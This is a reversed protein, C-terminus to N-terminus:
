TAYEMATNDAYFMATNDAYLMALDVPALDLEVVCSVVSSSPHDWAITRAPLDWAITDCGAVVTDSM